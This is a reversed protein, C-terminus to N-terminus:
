VALLRSQQGAFERLLAHLENSPLQRGFFIKLLLESKFHEVEAPQRQWERFVSRGRSTLKYIKRDPRGAQRKERVEVLGDKDLQKLIPYINGYSERWFFSISSDIFKRMEYGTMPKLTLLGLLAFRTTSKRSM